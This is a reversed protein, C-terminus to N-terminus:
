FSEEAFHVIMSRAAGGTGSGAYSLTTGIANLLEHTLLSNIQHRTFLKPIEGARSMRIFQRRTNAVNNYRALDQALRKREARNLGKIIQNLSKGTSSRIQLVRRATQGLGATSGIISIADLIHTSVNYWTESDLHQENIGPSYLENIVRGSSIGCQASSALAASTALATVIGSAGFTFPVAAASKTAAVGALVASGCSLGMNLLERGINSSNEAQDINTEEFDTEEIEKIVIWFGFGEPLSSERVIMSMNNGIFAIGCDRFEEIIDIKEILLQKQHYNLGSM